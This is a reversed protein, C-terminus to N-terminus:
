ADVCEVQFPSLLAKSPRPMERHRGLYWVQIPLRCGFHRLARVTVYLAPLFRNGGGAIVVGRGRFRGLPYAPIAALFADAQERMKASNPAFPERAIYDACSVCSPLVS